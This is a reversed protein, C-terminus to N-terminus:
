SENSGGDVLAFSYPPWPGVCVYSLEPRKRAIEEVVARLRAADGAPVLYAATLVLDRTGTVNRTAARSLGDVAGDLEGGVDDALKIAELRGRMYDGGSVAAAEKGSEQRVVRVGMEVCGRVRDLAGSLEASRARIGELLAAKSEHPRAIRAPLVADNLKALEEVVHAHALIAAETPEAPSGDVESFVADIAGVAASALQSAGIGHVAPLRAPHDALAYLHLM